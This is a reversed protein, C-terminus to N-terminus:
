VIAMAGYTSYNGLPNPNPHYSGFVFKEQPLSLRNEMQASIQVRVRNTHGTFTQM